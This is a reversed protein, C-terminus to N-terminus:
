RADFAELVRVLGELATMTGPGFMVELRTYRASEFSRFADAIEQPSGSLVDPREGSSSLPRVSVGVSRGISAPDRGEEACIAELREIRPAMEDVHAREEV